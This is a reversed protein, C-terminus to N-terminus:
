NDIRNAGCVMTQQIDIALERTFPIWIILFFIRASKFTVILSSKIWMNSYCIVVTGVCFTIIFANNLTSLVNRHRWLPCSPTEFWWGWWEKSLRKNPHLDFFVDFSRTVPRQAPFEGPVPSNEACIALLVSFTEMQHRWWSTTWFTNMQCRNEPTSNYDGEYLSNMEHHKLASLETMCICWIHINWVIYAQHVIHGPSIATCSM